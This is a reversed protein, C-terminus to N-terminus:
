KIKSDFNLSNIKEYIEQDNRLQMCFESPKFAKFAVCPLTNGFSTTAFVFFALFASYLFICSLYRNVKSKFLQDSLVREPLLQRLLVEKKSATYLPFPSSEVWHVHCLHNKITFTQIPRILSHLDDSCKDHFYYSFLSLSATNLSHFLPQDTSFLVDDVLGHLDNQHWDLCSLSSQATGAASIICQRVKKWLLSWHRTCHM